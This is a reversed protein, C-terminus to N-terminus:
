WDLLNEMNPPVVVADIPIIVGSSSRIENGVVSANVMQFGTASQISIWKGQVTIAIAEQGITTADISSTALSASSIVTSIIHCSLLSVLSDAHQEQLFKEIKGTPLKAFAADTPALLTYPHNDRLVDDLCSAQLLSILVNFSGTSTVSEIIDTHKPDPRRKAILRSLTALSQNQSQSPRM